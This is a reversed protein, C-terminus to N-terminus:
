EKISDTQCKHWKMQNKEETNKGFCYGSQKLISILMENQQCAIAIQPDNPEGNECKSNSEIQQKIYNEAIADQPNVANKTTNTENVLPKIPNNKENNNIKDEISNQIKIGGWGYYAIFPGLLITFFLLNLISSKFANGISIPLILKSIISLVIYYVIIFIVISISILLQFNLFRTINIGNEKSPNSIGNQLMQSFEEIYIQGLIFLPVVSIFLTIIEIIILWSFDPRTVKTYKTFWRFGIKHLRSLFLINCVIIVVTFAYIGYIYNKDISVFNQMPFLFKNIFYIQYFILLLFLGLALGISKRDGPKISSLQDTTDM